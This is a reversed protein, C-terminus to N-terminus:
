GMWGADLSCLMAGEAVSARAPLGWRRALGASPVGCRVRPWLYGWQGCGWGVGLTCLVAGEVTMM